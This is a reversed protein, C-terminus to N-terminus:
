KTKSSSAATQKRCKDSCFWKANGRPATRLGVCPYHFWEVACQKNDCAIMPGYSIDRCVCYVDEQVTKDATGWQEQGQRQGQGQKSVRQKELLQSKKLNIRIKLPRKARGSGVVQPLSNIHEQYRKSVSALERLEELQQELKKRHQKVLQRLYKAENLFEKCRGGQLELSQITWLTRIIECPLHDLTNLFSYRVDDM